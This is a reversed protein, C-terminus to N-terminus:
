VARIPRDGGLQTRVTALLGTCSARIVELVDTFAPMGDYYPDPVDLASSTADAPVAPDFSRLLVIRSRETDNAAWSRLTRLHGRDLAVVLDRRLFWRPDFQRARHDSGDLGAHSLVSLARRDAQEGIHWDGTGASDIELLHDAGADRALGRLVIEAMPSRCINGSCVFCIRFRGDAGMRGDDPMRRTPRFVPTSVTDIRLAISRPHPETPHPRIPHLETSHPRIPHSRIPHLRGSEDVPAPPCRVTWLRRGAPRRAPRGQRADTPDTGTPPM